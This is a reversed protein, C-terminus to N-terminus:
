PRSVVLWGLAQLRAQFRNVVVIWGVERVGKADVKAHDIYVTRRALGFDSPEIRQIVAASPDVGHNDLTLDVTAQGLAKGDRHPLLHREIRLAVKHAVRQHVVEQRCRHFRRLPLSVEGDRWAGVVGDASFTHCLGGM